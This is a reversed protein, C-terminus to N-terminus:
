TPFDNTHLLRSLAPILDDSRLYETVAVKGGSVIGRHAMELFQRAMPHDNDNSIRRAPESEINTAALSAGGLATSLLIPKNAMVSWCLEEVIGPAYGQYDSIRGGVVIRVDCELCLRYRMALLHRARMEKLDRRDPTENFVTITRVSSLWRGSALALALVEAEQDEWSITEIKVFAALERKEAESLSPQDPAALYNKVLPHEPQGHQNRYALAFKSVAEMVGGARWNHGLVVTAGLSLLRRSLDVTISNITQASLGLQALSPSESISIGIRLGQLQRQYMKM